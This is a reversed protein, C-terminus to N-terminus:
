ILLVNKKEFQTNSTSPLKMQATYNSVAAFRVELAIVCTEAFACGRSGYRWCVLCSDSPFRLWDNDVM